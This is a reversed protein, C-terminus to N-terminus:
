KKAISNFNKYLKSYKAAIKTSNSNFDIFSSNHFLVCQGSEIMEKIKQARLNTIDNYRRPHYNNFSGISNPNRMKNQSLYNNDWQNSELVGGYKGQGFYVIDYEGNIDNRTSNLKSLTIADVKINPYTAKNSEIFNKLKSEDKYDPVIELIKIEDTIITPITTDAFVGTNIATLIICFSLFAAM